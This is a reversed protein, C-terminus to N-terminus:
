KEVLNAIRKRIRAITQKIQVETFNGLKYEFKLLGSIEKNAKGMKHHKYVLWDRRFNKNLSVQKYFIDMEKKIRSWNDNMYKRLAKQTVPRTFAICYLDKPMGWSIKGLNKSNYGGIFLLKKM